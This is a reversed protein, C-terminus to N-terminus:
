EYSLGWKKHAEETTKSLFEQVITDHANKFWSSMDREISLKATTILELIFIKKKDNMRIAPRVNINVPFEGSKYKLEINFVSLSEHETFGELLRIWKVLDVPADWVEGHVMHNIYSLHCDLVEPIGLAHTKCFECFTNWEQVFRDWVGQVGEKRTQFHPYPFTGSLRRWNVFFADNQVQLLFPTEQSEYWLLPLEPETLFTVQPVGQVGPDFVALRPRRRTQQYRGRLAAFFLGFHIDSWKIGAFHVGCVVEELPPNEFHITSAM